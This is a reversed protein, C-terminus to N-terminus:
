LGEEKLRITYTIKYSQSDISISEIVMIWYWNDNSQYSSRLIIINYVLVIFNSFHQFAVICYWNMRLYLHARVVILEKTYISAMYGEILNSTTLLTTFKEELFKM